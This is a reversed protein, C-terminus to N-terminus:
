RCARCLGFFELNHNRIIFSTEKEIKKELAALDREAAVDQIAGCGTCVLHHHHPLGAIEYRKKGDGFDIAAIVGRELLFRVERYVTTKNVSLNKKKLFALLAAADLPQKLACLREILAQRVGTKKYGQALLGALIKKPM